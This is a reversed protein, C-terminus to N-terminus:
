QGKQLLEVICKVHEGFEQVVKDREALPLKFFPGDYSVGYWSEFYRMIDMALNSVM